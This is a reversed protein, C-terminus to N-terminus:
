RIILSTGDWNLYDTSNGIYFKALNDTDIGLRYGTQVNNFTTKGSFIAGLQQELTSIVEGSIIIKPAIGQTIINLLEPTVLDGISSVSEKTLLNSFGLDLVSYRPQTIDEIPM